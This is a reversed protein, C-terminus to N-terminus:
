RDINDKKFLNIALINNKIVHTINLNVSNEIAITVISLTFLLFWSVILTITHYITNMLNIATLIM